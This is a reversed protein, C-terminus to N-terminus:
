EEEDDMAQDIITEPLSKKAKAGMRKLKQVSSILNGRGEVLKNMASSYDKKADDMKKGVGTLDKVLGEFKDYLAGAQRAIEIANRQQKENNWMTDITRLTALLTSPTVIVINKEFASTYLANEANIAIAFAPEIPVFLLVFDPSEMDYLDHYNKESLQDVHRKLSNIHAKLFLPRQDEDANVYREYDTLSVKSDIIMKKNNPLNLVVDPLVRTGDPRTFSQQVFYERDKELGSKELVRELVLEGWNGQMKSDGKLAKTLNSTEKSMQQNLDKLGLLQEKLASHMSISEKQTDDVKKEFTQIKEQLPSLINKINEKNQLTFKESKEDLIKTALLEFDKRLQIQRLEVEEERQTYRNQLNNFETTKRALENGLFEKERRIDERDLEIKSIAEAYEAMKAKYNAEQSQSETAHQVKNEQLQQSLNINREELTSQESKSKLANFRMGLYAGLAASILITLLLIISDTM